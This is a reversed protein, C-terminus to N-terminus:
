GQKFTKQGSNAEIEPPIKTAGSIEFTKNRGMEGRIIRIRSPATGFAKSLLKIAQQNAQGDVPPATLRLKLRGNESQGLALRSSRTQVRTQLVINEGDIVACTKTQADSCGPM